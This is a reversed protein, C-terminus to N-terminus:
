LRPRPKCPLHSPHPEKKARVVALRQLPQLKDSAELLSLMLVVDVDVDVGDSYAKWMRWMGMERKDGSDGCMVGEDYIRMGRYM